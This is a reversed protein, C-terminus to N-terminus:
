GLRLEVLEDALLEPGVLTLEDVGVGDFYSSLAVRDYALRSEAGFVVIRWTGASDRRRMAAVLRHGVMGHGVVVLTRAASM